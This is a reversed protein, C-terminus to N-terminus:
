YFQLNGGLHTALHPVYEAVFRSRAAVCHVANAFDKAQAYCRALSNLSIQCFAGHLLSFDFVCSTQELSSKILIGM